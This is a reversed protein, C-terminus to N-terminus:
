VIIVSGSSSTANTNEIEFVVGFTGATDSTYKLIGTGADKIVSNSGDHYIELDDGTGFTLKDNDGLAIGGNAAIETSFTNNGTFDNNGALTVDATSEDAWVANSGAGQSKLIQGTTGTSGGFSATGTFSANQLNTSGSLLGDLATLNSNLKIGWTGDSGDPEPLVFGYVPTTTDSM